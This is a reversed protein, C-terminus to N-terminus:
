VVILRNEHVALGRPVGDLGGDAGGLVADPERDTLTGAHDWIGVRGDEDAIVLRPGLPAPCDSDNARECGAPCCGDGHECVDCTPPTADPDLPNADPGTGNGSDGCSAVLLLLLVCGLHLRM